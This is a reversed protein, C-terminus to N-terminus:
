AFGDRVKLGIQTTALDEQEVLSQSADICVAERYHPFGDTM